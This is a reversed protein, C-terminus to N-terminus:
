ILKEELIGKLKIFLNKGIEVNRKITLESLIQGYYKIGHRKKRLKHLFEVDYDSFYRNRLFEIACEHSLTKFGELALLAHCLEIIAEYIGEFTFISIPKSSFFNFRKTAMKLLSKALEKDKTRKEVLKSRICEEWNM